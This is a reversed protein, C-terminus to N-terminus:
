PKNTEIKMLENLIMKAEERRHQGILWNAENTLISFYYKQLDEIAPNAIKWKSFATLATKYNTENNKSIRLFLGTPIRKYLPSFEQNIRLDVYVPRDILSKEVIDSLLNQWCTYIKNYNYPQNKEFKSLEILFTDMTRYIREILWPAQSKLQHFYWTRNQLLSKDIIIVDKREGRIYQYYWAPSIFYDWMSAIVVANPELDAFAKEVFEQPARSKSEDCKKFNVAFQIVITFVILIIAVIKLWFKKQDSWVILFYSGYLILWGTVIYSLLFYSDIDFIDYNISYLIATTFLGLFFILLNRSHKWLFVIGALIFIWSVIFFESSFNSLYYNLQKQVVDWGAFLWVQYQKGSIHWLFKELSAPHGWNFMPNSASRIPLYFYISLGLLFFPSLKLILKFSNKSWGLSKFYLWLFAPVLLVTTMHNSFSLGLIFTFLIFRNAIYKEKIMLDNLGSIFLLSTMLILVLHLAYVEVNTSQMWFTTSFALTLSAGASILKFRKDNISKRNKFSFIAQANKIALSTKFFIGVASATLISAFINLRIIEELRIPILIWSRGLLTFLPYGTPHAIGLTCAVAALEGSDTVGVSRSMTLLYNVFAVISVFIAIANESGMYSAIKNRELVNM